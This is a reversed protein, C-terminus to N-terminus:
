DPNKIFTMVGRLIECVGRAMLPRFIPRNSVCSDATHLGNVCQFLAATPRVPLRPNEAGFAVEISVKWASKDDAVSEARYPPCGSHSEGSSFSDTDLAAVAPRCHELRIARATNEFM